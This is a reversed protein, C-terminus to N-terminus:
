YFFAETIKIITNKWPRKKLNCDSIARANDITQEKCMGHKPPLSMIHGYPLLLSQTENYQTIV